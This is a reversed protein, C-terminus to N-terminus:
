PTSSQPPDPPMASPSPVAVAEPDAFDATWWHQHARSHDASAGLADAAAEWRDAALACFPADLDDAALALDAAIGVDKALLGLAFGTGYRAPLVHDALVHETAFSRGTSANFVGVMTAPELGYRQGIAMAETAAAYATAAVFNNLAKMAHGSGLPGTRFLREGLVALVPTAREVADDDDGGVMIALTGSQARPVGGSVPADVLAVGLQALQAGLEKTGRPNSSSMDVVVAGRRLAAAVGGMWELVVARVVRDDPLMTVVVDVDHFDEPGTAAASGHEKAFRAQLELDSDRVLLEFNARALNGAMPWGMNGLGIFGVRAPLGTRAM